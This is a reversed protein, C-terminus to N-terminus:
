LASWRQVWAQLASVGRPPPMVGPSVVLRTATARLGRKLRELETREGHIMRACHACTGAGAANVIAAPVAIGLTRLEGILRLTEERPLAAARTVAVFRTRRSDALLHRLRGTGQSLRLLMAGLDGLGVAPQYKLLISM